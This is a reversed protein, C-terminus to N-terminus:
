VSARDILLKVEQLVQKYKDPIEICDKLSGYHHDLCRVLLAKIEDKRPKAPLESKVFLEELQKEKDSAWRRVEEEPVEGRRIAKLHENNLRLNLTGNM